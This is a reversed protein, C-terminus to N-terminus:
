FSFIVFNIESLKQKQIKANKAYKNCLNIVKIDVLYGVVLLKSYTSFFFRPKEFAESCSWRDRSLHSIYVRLYIFIVSLVGVVDLFHMM